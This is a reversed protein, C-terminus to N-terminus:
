VYRFGTTNEGIFQCHFPEFGMVTNKVELTYVGPRSLVSVVTLTDKVQFFQHLSRFPLSFVCLPSFNSLLFSRVRLSLLPSESFLPALPDYSWNHPGGENEKGGRFM